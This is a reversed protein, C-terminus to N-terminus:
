EEDEDPLAALQADPDPTWPTCIPSSHRQLPQSLYTAVEKETAMRWGPDKLRWQAHEYDVSHIAGAPNVLYYVGKAGQKKTAKAPAKAGAETESKTAAM